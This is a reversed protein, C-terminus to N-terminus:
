EKEGTGLQNMLVRCANTLATAFADAAHGDEQAVEKLLNLATTFTPKMQNAYFWKFKEAASVESGEGTKSPPGAKAPGSSTTGGMARAEALERKLQEIQRQVDEPVVEVIQVEPEVAAAAAAAESLAQIKARAEALDKAAQNARNVADSARQASKAARDEADSHLKRLEKASAEAAAAKAQALSVKEAADAIVRKAAKLEEEKREIQRDREVIAADQRNGEDTLEQINDRATDIQAELGDIRTQDKLKEAKLRRIEDQLGRVSLDEGAAKEALAERAEAPAALLAVAKSYDLAAISEPISGGRGYELYLRMMDQAKRESYAVARELWELWRGAPCISKAEILRKGVALAASIVVGRTQETIANIETALATLRDADEAVIGAETDSPSPEGSVGGDATTVTKITDGDGATDPTDSLVKGGSVEAGNAEASTQAGELRGGNPFTAGAEGPDSSTEAERDGSAGGPFPKQLPPCDVNLLHGEADYGEATGTGERGPMLDDLTFQGKLENTNESEIM